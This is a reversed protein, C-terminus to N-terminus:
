GLRDVCGQGGELTEVGVQTGLDNGNSEKNKNLTVLSKQFIDTAKRGGQVVWLNISKVRM